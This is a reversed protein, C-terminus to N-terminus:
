EALKVAWSIAKLLVSQLDKMDATKIVKKAVMLAALVSVLSVVLNVASNLVKPPELQEVLRVVMMGALDVVKMEAKM